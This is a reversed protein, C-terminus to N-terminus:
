KPCAVVAKRDYLGALAKFRRMAVDGLFFDMKGPITLILSQADLQLSVEDLLNPAGGSITLGLRLARGVKMAHDLGDDDILPRVKDQAIGQRSGGYRAGIMFALRVREEHNIAAVPLHLVRTFADDARYDPHGSWGFDSLAAAAERLREAKPDEDPFLPDTWRMLPGGKLGFRSENTGYQACAARLPDASREKKKLRNYLWGERLGYASFVVRKPKARLLLREMLQAAMPLTSLRAKPVGPLGRLSEPGMRGVLGCIDLASRRSMEYEHIVHLPYGTHGMHINAFARWAGGVPYFTRGKIDELWSKGKLAKDFRATDGSGGKANKGLFRLSGFPLSTKKGPKGKELDVIELSGGGLDGVLGDAEPIGSIVGLASIEAEEEGELISLPAGLCKEAKAVFAKGDKAVRVAETAVVEWRTVGMARGIVAFRKLHELATSVGDVSLRKTERLDKGLGCLTRENFVPLPWRGEGSYIVM